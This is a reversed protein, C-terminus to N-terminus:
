IIGAASWPNVSYAIATLLPRRSSFSRFLRCINLHSRHRWFCGLVEPLELSRLNQFSPLLRFNFSSRLHRLELCLCFDPSSESICALLQSCAIIWQPPTLSPSTLLNDGSFEISLVPLFSSIRGVQGSTFKSRRVVIKTERNDRQFIIGALIQKLSALPVLPLLEKGIPGKPARSLPHTPSNTNPSLCLPFSYPDRSPFYTPPRPSYSQNEM